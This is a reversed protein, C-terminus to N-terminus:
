AKSKRTKPTSKKSKKSKSKKSKKLSIDLRKGIPTVSRGGKQPNFSTNKLQIYSLIRDLKRNDSGPINKDNVELVDKLFIADRYIKKLQDISNIAGDTIANLDDLAASKIKRLPIMQNEFLRKFEQNYQEIKENDNGSPTFGQLLRKSIENNENFITQIKKIKPNLPPEEAVAPVATKPLVGRPPYPPPGPPPRIVSASQRKAKITETMARYDVLNQQSREDLPTPTDGGPIPSAEPAGQPSAEPAGQPSAEPAGQPSAAPALAAEPYAAEPALAAEPAAEPALAAEPAAEPALAAEPAAEPALAAEPYAAEPSAAEPSAGEPVVAEYNEVVEAEGNGFNEGVTLSSAARERTNSADGNGLNIGPNVSNANSASRGRLNDNGVNAAANAAANANAPAAANAPAPANAAPAAANAAPAAAPAAANAPAAAAAAALGAAIQDDLNIVSLKLKGLIYNQFEKEDAPADEILDSISLYYAAEANQLAVKNAVSSDEKVAKFAMIAAAKAAEKESSV